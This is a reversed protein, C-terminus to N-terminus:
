APIPTCVNSPFGYSTDRGTIAAQIRVTDAPFQAYNTNVLLTINLVRGGKTVDPDLTFAQVNPSVVQNQIGTAVTRWATVDESEDPPWSRTQLNTSSIRWQDCFYGPSPTRTPANAQTYVRLSYYPTTENAPDYLLNGSRIERDLEEIALRAQNNDQTFAASRVTTRQLAILTSTFILLVISLIATAIVMEVLTVGEQGEHLRHIRTALDTRARM